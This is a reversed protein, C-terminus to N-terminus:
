IVGKFSLNGGTVTPEPPITFSGDRDKVLAKAHPQEPFLGLDVRHMVLRLHIKCRLVLGMVHRWRWDDAAAQRLHTRFDDDTMSFYDRELQRWYDAIHERDRDREANIANVDVALDEKSANSEARLSLKLDKPDPRFKANDKFWRLTSICLPVTYFECTRKYSAAVEVNKAIKEAQSPWIELIKGWVENWEENTMRRNNM